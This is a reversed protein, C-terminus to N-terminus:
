IYKRNRLCQLSSDEAPMLSWDHHAYLLFDVCGIRDTTKIDSQYSFKYIIAKYLILELLNAILKSM